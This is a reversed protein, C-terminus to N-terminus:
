ESMRRSVQVEASYMSAPDGREALTEHLTAITRPALEASVEADGFQIKVPEDLNVLEDNLRVTIRRVDDAKIRVSQGDIDATIEAGGKAQGDRLALWFFRDHTVDDQKWVVRKPFPNRTFKAMWPLAMADEGDMWHGKGAYIKVLHEYGSPDATRLDALKKEWEAAVQNRNYAADDGGMQLIFPLNRLGLPSTENPHGAMMAAAALRDAMRPALQFVGDGGASYGLIYVRNPDVDAFVILNEILRDFIRDIHEEHWLNWTNTPARPALYVGEEIKYLKKQNEWQRDNVRPPANGGGHMSIYLSRGNAPKDGFTEYFFPMKLEGDPLERKDMEEARTKLIWQRHDERLLEAAAEAGAKTLPAKAFPQEELKPRMARDQKLFAELLQVAGSSAAESLENAAPPNEEILLTVLQDAKEATVEDSGCLNGAVAAVKLRTGLAVPMAIHDNADFREDNSGGVFLTAGAANTIRLTTAVRANTSKNVARFLLRVMGEPLPAGKDTYRDTVNVASVYDAGRAWILPFKQDTRRYSVAYIAHLPDDRLAQSARDIFWSKNLDDGNAECAGTFHWGNDWIEVWTHNGSNDTWRPTGVVRAPIALARCADVLLVSLGTCSAKGSEISEYPSQDAKRRATSYQVKVLPFVQQNLTAAAKGPSEIGAILPKFREYFDKRWDDRRENINAYPLIENFFVDDPLRDKWPAEDRAQYAYRVNSTLFEATLSTLDREPMHAVLFRMGPQQDTPVGALAQEIQSRNEGARELATDILPQLADEAVSTQVLCLACVMWAALVRILAPM